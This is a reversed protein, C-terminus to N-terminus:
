TVPQLVRADGRKATAEIVDLSERDFFNGKERILANFAIQGHEGARRLASGM